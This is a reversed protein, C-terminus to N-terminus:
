ISPGIKYTLYIWIYQSAVINIIEIKWVQQITSIMQFNFIKIKQASDFINPLNRKPGKDRKILKYTKPFSCSLFQALIKFTNINLAQM